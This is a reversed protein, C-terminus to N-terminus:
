QGNSHKLIREGESIIKLEENGRSNGNKLAMELWHKAKITDKETGDGNLYYVGLQYQAMINGNKAALKTWFFSEEKDEKVGVGTYYRIGLHYQTCSDNDILAKTELEPSWKVLPSRINNDCSIFIFVVLPCIGGGLVNTKISM